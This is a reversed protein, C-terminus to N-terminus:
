RVIQDLNVRNAIEGLIKRYFYRDKEYEVLDEANRFIEPDSAYREIKRGLVPSVVVKGKPLSFLLIHVMLIRSLEGYNNEDLMSDGLTIKDKVDGTKIFERIQDYVKGKGPSYDINDPNGFFNVSLFFLYPGHLPNIYRQVYKYINPYYILLIYLSLLNISIPNYIRAAIELEHTNIFDEKQRNNPISLPVTFNYGDVTDELAIGWMYNSKDDYKLVGLNKNKTMVKNIKDWVDPRKVKLINVDNTRIGADTLYRSAMRFNQGQLKSLIIIQLDDNIANFYSEQTSEM